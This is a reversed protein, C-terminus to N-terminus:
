IFVGATADRRATDPLKTEIPKLSEIMRMAKKSSGCKPCKCTGKKCTCDAASGCSCTADLRLGELALLTRNTSSGFALPTLLMAGTTVAKMFSATPM